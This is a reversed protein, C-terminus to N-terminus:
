LETLLIHYHFKQMFPIVSETNSILLPALVNDSMGMEVMFLSTFKPMSYFNTFRDTFKSEIDTCYLNFSTALLLIYFKHSTLIAFVFVEYSIVASQIFFSAIALLSLPVFSVGLVESIVQTTSEFCHKQCWDAFIWM